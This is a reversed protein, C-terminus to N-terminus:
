SPLPTGVLWPHGVVDRLSARHSPLFTLMRTLLDKVAASLRPVSRDHAQWFSVFDGARVRAWYRSVVVLLQCSCLQVVCAGERVLSRIGCSVSVNANVVCVTHGRPEVSSCVRAFNFARAGSTVWPCARVVDAARGCYLQRSRVEPAMYMCSGLSTRLLANDPATVAFGFDVVKLAYNADLMLNEPKIDRHFVCRDHCYMLAAVFASVHMLSDRHCWTGSQL